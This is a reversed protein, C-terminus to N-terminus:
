ESRKRYMSNLAKMIKIQTPNNDKLGRTANNDYTKNYSTIAKNLEVKSMSNLKVKRMSGVVGVGVAAALPNFTINGDEDEQIGGAVGFAEVPADKYNKKTLDVEYWSVGQADTVREAGYKNKLYKGMEKEYFKYIPNEKDVTGSIDFTESARDNFYDVYKKYEPKGSLYSIAEFGDMDGVEKPLDDLFRAVVSTAEQKSVAKFKGDGLVDTIIWQEGPQNSVYVPQGVEMNDPTLKVSGREGLSGSVWNAPNDGLGEIKMATEGTPFQLKTKGDVAAKKVEERVVREHWTNRYPELKAIESARADIETNAKNMREIADPDKPNSLDSPKIRESAGEGELRGKQFLDSQIEIVRRTDGLKSSVHNYDPGQPDIISKPIDEVRSHAFYNPAENEGWHIRGASTKIPSEYIHEDYNAIPGRLEDGLVVGEHMPTRKGTKDTNWKNRELPLLETKVKNTFETVDINNGEDELMRRILDREPQKLDPSNTLDAIFQKSVVTKGELKGLLKTSIDGSDKFPPKVSTDGKGMTSSISNANSPPTTAQSQNLNRVRYNKPAKGGMFNAFGREDKMAEKATKVAAVLREKLVQYLEKLKAVLTFDGAKIAAKQQRVNNKIQGELKTIEKTRPVSKSVGVPKDPVRLNVQKGADARAKADGLIKNAPLGDGGGRLTGAMARGKLVAGLEGGVLGMAAAGFAGGASGGAIGLGTGILAAQYKGLRGGEVKKGNLLELRELDGYYKSLEKNVTRVDMDSKNEVIEKYVRALTKRYTKTEPPTNFNINGTTNIKADQVKELPVDGFENARLSLGKLEKEVGSLAAALDGGELKSNMLAIELEQKLEKLNITKGENVLNLRVVDELDSLSFGDNTIPLTKYAKAAADTNLTGNTDTANELVGSQAIRQRSGQIDRDFKNVKRFPAYNDELKGLEEVVKTLKKDPNKIFPKPVKLKAALEPITQATKSVAKTGLGALPVATIVNAAPGILKTLTFKDQEPLENYKETFWKGAGSEAVAGAATGLSKAFAKEFEGTSLVKAAGLIGEGGANVAASFPAIGASTLQATRSINPNKPNPRLGEFVGGAFQNAGQRGADVVGKFTEGIDGATDALFGKKPTAAGAPPVGYTMEYEARTMRVPAPTTDLTSTSVVPKIGYKKEYEARTMKIPQM